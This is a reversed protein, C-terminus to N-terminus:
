NDKELERKNIKYEQIAIVIRWAFLIVTLVGVVVPIADSIATYAAGSLVMGSDMIYGSKQQVVQKMSKIRACKNTISLCFNRVPRGLAMGTVIFGAFLFKFVGLHGSREAICALFRIDNEDQDHGAWVGYDHDKCCPKIWLDPFWSCGDSTFPKDDM